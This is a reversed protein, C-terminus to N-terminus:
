HIYFILQYLKQGFECFSHASRVWIEINVFINMFM